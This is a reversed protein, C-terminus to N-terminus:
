IHYSFNKKIGYSRYIIETKNNPFYFTELMDYIFSMLLLKAFMLMKESFFRATLKVVSTKNVALSNVSASMECDLDIIMKTQQNELFDETKKDNDKALKKKKKKTQLFRARGNKKEKKSQLRSM